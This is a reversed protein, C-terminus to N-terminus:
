LDVNKHSKIVVVHLKFAIPLKSNFDFKKKKQYNEQLQLSTNEM